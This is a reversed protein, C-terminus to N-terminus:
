GKRNVSYVRVEKGRGEDNVVVADCVLHGNEREYVVAFGDPSGLVAELYFHLDPALELGRRFHEVVEDKGRLCGDPRGWRTVVTEAYLVVDDAYHQAIRDLDHDNWASM